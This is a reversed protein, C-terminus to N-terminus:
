PPARGDNASDPYKWEALTQLLSIGDGPAALVPGRGPAMLLALALAPIGAAFPKLARRM